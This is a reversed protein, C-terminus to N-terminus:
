ESWSISDCAIENRDDQAGAIDICTVFKGPPATFEVPVKYQGPLSVELPVLSFGTGSFLVTLRFTPLNKMLWFTLAVKKFSGSPLIITLTAFRGFKSPFYLSKFGHQGQQAAHHVIETPLPTTTPTSYLLLGSPLELYDPGFPIQRSVVAEFDEFGSAPVQIINLVRIPFLVKTVGGDFSVEFILTLSSGDKLAKLNSLAVTTSPEATSSIPFNQWAPHAWNYATGDEKTGEFRLSIRQGAAIFPWPKVRLGADGTLADVDLSGDASAQLIRPAELVSDSLTRVTLDLQPSPKTVGNRMVSYLVPITKGIVAAVASPPITFTVSGLASGQQPLVLNDLSNWSLGITDTTQMDYAVVVTAGNLADIPELSGSPADIVTPRPIAVVTFEYPDSLLVGGVTLATISHLTETLESFTSQWSGDSQAVKTDIPYSDDFLELTVGPGATGSITLLNDLTESGNSVDGSVGTVNLIHPRVEGRMAEVILDLATSPETVGSRMVMYFVEITQGATDTVAARPVLFDITGSSNGYKPAVLDGRGNWFMFILDTDEMIYTVRVTAGNVANPDLVGSPAEVVAPQTYRSANM